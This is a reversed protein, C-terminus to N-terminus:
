GRPGACGSPRRWPPASEVMVCCTARLKKRDLSCVELALGVFHQQGPLDLFVEALVLDQFHIHVLDIQALAGVAEGGRGRLDIEALIQLVQGASAAM